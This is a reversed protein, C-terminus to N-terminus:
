YKKAEEEEGGQIELIRSYLAMIIGVLPIGFLVILIFFLVLPMEKPYLIEFLFIGGFIIGYYLIFVLASLIAGLLKKNKM